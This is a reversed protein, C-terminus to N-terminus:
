KFVRGKGQMNAEQSQLGLMRLIDPSEQIAQVVDKDNGKICPHYDRLFFDLYTLAYGGTKHLELIIEPSYEIRHIRYVLDDDDKRYLSDIKPVLNSKQCLQEIDTLLTSHNM